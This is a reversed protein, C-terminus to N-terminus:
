PRSQLRRNERETAERDVLLGVREEFSLSGYESSALQEEFARAMGHLKLARLKDLTPITLM